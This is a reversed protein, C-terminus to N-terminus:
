SWWHYNAANKNYTRIPIIIRTNNDPIIADITILYLKIHPDIIEGNPISDIEQLIRLDNTQICKIPLCFWITWQSITINKQLDTTLINKFLLYNLLYMRKAWLLCIRLVWEKRLQLFKYLNVILVNIAFGPTLAFHLNSLFYFLFLNIM